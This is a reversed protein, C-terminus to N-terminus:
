ALSCRQVYPMECVGKQPLQPVILHQFKHTELGSTVFLEDRFCKRTSVLDERTDKIELITVGIRALQFHLPLFTVNHAHLMKLILTNEGFSVNNFTLFM